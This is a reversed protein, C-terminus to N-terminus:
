FEFFHFKTTVTPESKHVTVWTEQLYTDSSDTYRQLSEFTWGIQMGDNIYVKGTCRGFERQLSKFLSGITDHGTEYPESNGFVYNKTKNTFSEDIWLSM